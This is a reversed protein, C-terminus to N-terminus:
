ASRGVPGVSRGPLCYIWIDDPVPALPGDPASFRLRGDKAILMLGLARAPCASRFDSCAGDESFTTRCLKLDRVDVRPLSELQVEDAFM